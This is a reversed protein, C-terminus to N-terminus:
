ERERLRESNREGLQKSESAGLVAVAACTQPSQAVGRFHRNCQMLDYEVLSLSRAATWQQFIGSPVSNNDVAPTSHFLAFSMRCCCFHAPRDSQHFDSKLRGNLPREMPCNWHWHNLNVLENIGDTQINLVILTTKAPIV